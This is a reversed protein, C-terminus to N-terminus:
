RTPKGAAQHQVTCTFCMKRLAPRHLPVLRSFYAYRFISNGERLWTQRPLASLIVYELHTDTAKTIRCAFRMRRIIIGVM